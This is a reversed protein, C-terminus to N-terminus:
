WCWVACKKWRDSQEAVSGSGVMSLLRHGHFIHEVLQRSDSVDDQLERGGNGDQVDQVEGAAGFVLPENELTEWWWPGGPPGALGFLPFRVLSRAPSPSCDCCRVAGFADTWFFPSRCIECPIPNRGPPQIATAQLIKETPREIKTELTNLIGMQIKKGPVSPVSPVSLEM